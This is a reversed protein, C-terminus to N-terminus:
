ADAGSEPEGDDGETDQAEPEEALASTLDKQSVEGDDGVPVELSEEESSIRTNYVTEHPESTRSGRLGVYRADGYEREVHHQSEKVFSASTDIGQQASLELAAVEAEAQEMVAELEPTGQWHPNPKKLHFRVSTVLDVSERWQAFTMERRPSRINWREGDKRLLSRFAGILGNLTIAAGRPQLAMQLTRLNVAFPSTLGAPVAVERFNVEEEDWIEAMGEAGRFGIRGTLVDANRSTRGIIWERGYRETRRGPSFADRVYQDRTPFLTAEAAPVLVVKYVRSKSRPAM